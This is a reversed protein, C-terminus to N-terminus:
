GPARVRHSPASRVHRPIAAGFQAVFGIARGVGILGAGVAFMAGSFALWPEATSWLLRGIIEAFLLSV